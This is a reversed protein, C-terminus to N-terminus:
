APGWIREDLAADGAAELQEDREVLEAESRILAAVSELWLAFREPSNKDSMFVVTAVPATRHTLVLETVENQTSRSFRVEPDDAQDILVTATATAM